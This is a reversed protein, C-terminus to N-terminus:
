IHEKSSPEAIRKRVRSELTTPQTSVGLKRAAVKLNSMYVLCIYSRPIGEACHIDLECGSLSKSVIM